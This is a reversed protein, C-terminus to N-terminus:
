LVGAQKIVVKDKEKKIQSLTKEIEIKDALLRLSMMEFITRISIEVEFTTRIEAVLKISLLSHGGLDFFNATASILQSDLVLLRSWIETLKNETDSAPPVYESQSLSINPAPLSKRDIKGNATLPWKEIMIFAAPIMYEPLSIQLNQKVQAILDDDTLQNNEDSVLYAVLRKDGQSGSRAMVLSSGVGDCLSLQSEIEGLEIRFGRIKVQDDIRGLYELNGDNLYRVLDGTKYLRDSPDHSFPNQIFRQRTLDDRNLYGRALCVGQIHLEGTGGQPCCNLQKDLVLLGINQIPKGIPVSIQNTLTSCDFYSVEIAAETPGYLNHLSIHPAQKKLAKVDAIDLAEGSCFIYRVHASFRAEPVSLFINFMSPVFHLVSINEQAILNSLYVPDKHGEPKAVALTAGYGLTWVFEWVSVDFSFPTKQLVCDKNDIPYSKQMWDIRNVVSKHEVMVGKPDGTSGSTYIVYALSNSTQEPNIEPNESPYQALQEIVMQSDMQTVRIAPCITLDDTLDGLMLLHEFGTNDLMFQLRAQPYSPELPVYAAGAKLIAMIGVVMEVSRETLLGVLSETKVGQAKLYHALRNAAQNLAQYTLTRGEFRLAIQQPNKEVQSEFLQHIFKDQPFDRATNNLDHVLHHVEKESLMALRATESQSNEVMGTLLSELHQNLQTIHQESFISQDYVWSFAIGRGTIRASVELDFKAVVENNSLPSFNLGPLKIESVENSNMNFMIQFLPTHQTTRPVKCLEVLHEFPVDQNAQAELNVQRVHSFYDCLEVYDTSTRLVLTNVFFGILSELEAQNRNAVPTGIVIDHNNSHRSLVLGLAAHLLMFPTLNHSHSFQQIKQSIQQNLGGRVIDASLRKMEPRSYDLPLSHVTPVDCLQTKWYELQKDLLDGTLRTRQWHAFDSYQIALPPLPDEQHNLAALYQQSFENILVGMSWGDSAIHHMNFLLVGRQQEKSDVTKLYSARLMLDESLNFVKRCDELILDEVTRDREPQAMDTLDHTTINFDFDGIVKQMPGQESDSFITRLTKHRTIIRSIAKEAIAVEFAGEVEIAAPMNYQVSSGQLQDIFWLRQQSFSLPLSTTSDVPTITLQPKALRVERQYGLHEALQWSTESLFNHQIHNRWSDSAKQEIGRHNHFKVDGLMRSVQHVGDTMRGQVSDYPTLLRASYEINLFKCLRRMEKEPSAVLNEFVVIHKREDPVTQLFNDINQHCATWLLEGLQRSSYDHQNLYLLQDLQAKEFSSIVAYPHRVLHIYHMDEFCAEARALTEPHYAYSPTKDVLIAPGIWQQLKKYFAQTTMGQEEFQSMLAEAETLDIKKIEMIARLVGELWFKYSGSFSERRQKLTDFGLLELEPPAFLQQHGALMARLLTSGSRPPSLMLVMKPNKAETPPSKEPIVPVLQRVKELSSQNVIFNSLQESSEAELAAVEDPRLMAQEVLAETYHQMLYTSFEAVTPNEFIVILHIIESLLTQVQNIARMALLSHGGLEFFNDGVGVKEIGLVEQWSECIFKEIASQPAIFEKQHLETEGLTPLSAVDIKNNGTLPFAHLIIFFQPVMYDPLTQSLSTRIRDTLEAKNTLQHAEEPIVYAVIVPMGNADERVMTLHSQIYNLQSLQQEIEGLEIRFGRIKVQEDNRGIYVLEGQSNYRALDGSKYLRTLGRARMQKGAFPNFIFREDTLEPQNLYGEALGAGGLYIEGIAGLPVPSLNHDLLYIAQDKLRKGIVSETQEGKSLPKVSAHVTTETIGYMNVLQPHQDGYSQWWPNLSSLQLAEGGFIVFRLASLSQERTLTEQIFGKFASPTQNLVTVQHQQCLTVFQRTDRSCQYDPIVLKGGYFLAGWLEWVSFDFSISHFLTWVDFNNFDFEAETTTFLRIVNQHTQLVGKPRGSSGSTYIIYALSEGDHLKARSLNAEPYHNIHEFLNSDDFLILQTDDALKLQETLSGSSLLYKVDTDLLMYNLRDSPYDPDLPVYAGGAKLIALIGVVSEISRQVCLGVLVDPGVGQERLYHALRNAQQNLELYSMSQEEFILAQQNGYNAVQNEFVEHILQHSNQKEEIENLQHLLYHSEQESLMKLESLESDPQSAINSLLHELHESIQTIRAGEFLTNDYVWSLAIGEDTVQIRLNLEFKAISDVRGMSSFTIGPLELESSETNDMNLIIQVLPMHQENPAVQCHEVLQEFPVDQNAHAEINVQKVHNLYDIFNNSSVDTRLVLTNIFFGILPELEAQLRNAVPTGIVVDRTNSHRSLLLSFAAHIVVFITTDYQRALEHLQESVQSNLQSRFFSASAAQHRQRSHDLPLGHVQPVGALQKNWYNLQKDLERQQEPERQWCAYDVYQISLPPLNAEQGSMAAQYYHVFERVLVGMSWGDSAIHHINFLLIGQERSDKETLQLYCVRVMLDKSLDFIRNCDLRTLEDAKQKQTALDFERLDVYDLNFKFVQQVKQQPGSSHESFTTRLSEHRQIINNMAKEAAIRDFSGEVQLAAPMNYKASGGQMREILWLRQQAYSLPHSLHREVRKFLSTDETNSKEAVDSALSQQLYAIIQEKKGGIKQKLAEPLKGKESLYALKGNKIYLTIALLKCEDIIEKLGSM